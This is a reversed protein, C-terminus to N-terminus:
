SSVLTGQNRMADHTFSRLLFVTDFYDAVSVGGLMCLLYYCFCLLGAEHTSVCILGADCFEGSQGVASTDNLQNQSM